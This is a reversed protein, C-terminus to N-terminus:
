IEREKLELGRVEMEKRGVERGAGVDEMKRGGQLGVGGM